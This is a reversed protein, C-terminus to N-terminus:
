LKGVEGTDRMRALHEMKRGSLDLRRAQFIMYISVDRLNMSGTSIDEKFEPGQVWSGGQCRCM